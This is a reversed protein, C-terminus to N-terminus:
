ITLSHNYGVGVVSNFELNWKTICGGFHANVNVMRKPIFVACLSRSLKMHSNTTAVSCFKIYDGGGVWWAKHSLEKM